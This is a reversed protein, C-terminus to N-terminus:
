SSHTTLVFCLLSFFILPFFVGSHQAASPTASGVVDAGSQMLFFAVTLRCPPSTGDSCCDPLKKKKKQLFNLPAL